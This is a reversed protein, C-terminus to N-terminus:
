FSEARFDDTMLKRPADLPNRNEGHFSAAVGADNLNAEDIFLIRKPQKYKALMGELAAVITIEDVRRV